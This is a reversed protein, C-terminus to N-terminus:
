TEGLPVIRESDTPVTFQRVTLVPCSAHRLMAGAISGVLIHSLGRRGHTGMIMLDFGEQTVYSAISDAPLGPKLVYAARVGQAALCNALVQLREELYERQRRWENAHSLSFDLGYAVPEMAHLLTLAAGSHKAFRAAYELADLSCRSLDVPAVIRKLDGAAGSGAAGKPAKVSLVPCPAMRVVREATSGILVHDLGTRGHTGVVLLDAGIETAVTQVVQSPIGVEIRTAASRGGARARATAGELKRASEDRLHDLYMKNVTYDPDMGPYFELVTLVTLEAQWQAALAVAYDLARDACASFDTAFLIRTILPAM